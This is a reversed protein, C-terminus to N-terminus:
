RWLVSPRVASVVSSFICVGLNRMVDARQRAFSTTRQYGIATYHVYAHIFSLQVVQPCFESGDAM